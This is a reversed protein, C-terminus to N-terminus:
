GIKITHTRQKWLLIGTVIVAVASMAFFLGGIIWLALALGHNLWVYEAQFGFGIVLTSFPLMVAGFYKTFGIVHRIIFQKASNILGM